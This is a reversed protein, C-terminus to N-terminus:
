SADATQERVDEGVIRAFRGFTRRADSWTGGYRADRLLTTRYSFAYSDLIDGNAAVLDAELDAGGRSFSHSYSLNPQDRLQERTPRNPTADVIRVQLVTGDAMSIGGVADELDDLLESALYDLEEPGYDEAKDLLREGFRIEAITIPEDAMAPAALMPAALMSAAMFSAALSPSLHDRRM